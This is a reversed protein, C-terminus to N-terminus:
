GGEDLPPADLTPDAPYIEHWVVGLIVACTTDWAALAAMQWEVFLGLVGGVVIGVIVGAILRNLAPAHTGLMRHYKTPTGPMSAM